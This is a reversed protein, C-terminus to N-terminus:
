DHSRMRIGIGWWTEIVHGEQRLKLVYQHIIPIAYLPGGDAQDGWLLDIVAPYPVFRDCQWLLAQRLIDAKRVPLHKVGLPNLKQNKEMQDSKTSGM